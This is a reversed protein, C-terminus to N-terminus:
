RFKQYISQQVDLSGTFITLLSGHVSLSGFQVLKKLASKINGGHLVRSLPMLRSTRKGTSVSVIPDTSDMSYDIPNKVRSQAKQIFDTFKGEDLLFENLTKM